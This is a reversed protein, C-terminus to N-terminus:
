VPEREPELLRRGVDIGDAGLQVHTDAVEGRSALDGDATAVGAALEAPDMDPEPGDLTRLDPHDPRIALGSWPKRDRGVFESDHSAVGRGNLDPPRGTRLPRNLDTAAGRREAM